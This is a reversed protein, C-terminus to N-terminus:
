LKISERKKNETQEGFLSLLLSYITKYKKSKKDCNVNKQCSVLRDKILLNEQGMNDKSHTLQLGKLVKTRRRQLMDTSEKLTFLVMDLM